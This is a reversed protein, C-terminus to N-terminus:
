KAWNVSPLSTQGKNKMWIKRETVKSLRM